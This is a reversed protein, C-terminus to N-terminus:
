ALYLPTSYPAGKEFFYTYAATQGTSRGNLVANICVINYTGFFASLNFPTNVM